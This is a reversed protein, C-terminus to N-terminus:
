RKGIAALRGEYLIPGSPTATVAGGEPELSIALTAALFAEPPVHQQQATGDPWPVSTAASPAIVGLAVPAATKQAFLWLEYSRKPVPRAAVPTVLISKLKMDIAVVFAPPVKADANEDATQGASSKQLVAVLATPGAMPTGPLNQWALVVVGALVAALASAAIAMRRWRRLTPKLSSVNAPRADPGWLRRTIDELLHAPPQEGPIGDGLTDLRREWAAIAADLTRDSGRRADVDRRETPSLSGLVYEAALGEIDEEETM